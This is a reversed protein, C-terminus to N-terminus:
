LFRINPTFYQLMDGDLRIPLLDHDIGGDDADMLM